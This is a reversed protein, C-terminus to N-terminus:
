LPMVTIEKSEKHSLFKRLLIDLSKVKGSWDSDKFHKSIMFDLTQGVMSEIGGWEEGLIVSPPLFPHKSLYVQSTHITKEKM